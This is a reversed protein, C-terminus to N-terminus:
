DVRIDAFVNCKLLFHYEDEVEGSSCIPCVRKKLKLSHTQGTTDDRVRHKNCTEVRLHLTGCCFEACISRQSKPLLTSVYNPIVFNDKLTIYKRLRLKNSLDRKWEQEM